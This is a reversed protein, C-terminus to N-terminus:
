NKNLVDKPKSPPALAYNKQSEYLIELEMGLIQVVDVRVRRVPTM